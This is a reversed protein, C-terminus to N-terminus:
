WCLNRLADSNINYHDVLRKIDRFTLIRKDLLEQLMSDFLRQNNLIIQKAIEYYKKKESCILRDVNERAWESCYYRDEYDTVDLSKTCDRAILLYIAKEVSLIDRCCGVDPKHLIVETAAKGGFDILIEAERDKISLAEKEDSKTLGYPMHDERLHLATFIVSGPRCVESVITHGIEHVAIDYYDDIDEEAALQPCSIVQFCARLFENYGVKDKGEYAAYLGAKNIAEEIEACSFGNMVRAFFEIDVDDELNKQKMYHTLIKESDEKEPEDMAFTNDFRGARTLSDPMDGSYNVTAIFFVGKDKYEDILSQITVYEPADRHDIDNNSFKDMDDMLIISPASEAAKKFTEELEKLFDGNTKKKRIVFSSLGSEEIFCNAMLTKGTGPCGEFLIGHPMSAGIKHYREPNKLCDCYVRLEKKVKEYGIVKDFASM